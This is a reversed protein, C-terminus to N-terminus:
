PTVDVLQTFELTFDIAKATQTEERQTPWTMVCSFYKLAGANDKTYTRIFIASSAGTCFTRLQDRMTRPLFDWHWTAIPAGIGRKSGDGLEIVDAYPSFTPKPPVVPVTLDEINVCGVLTTGIEFNYLTAM